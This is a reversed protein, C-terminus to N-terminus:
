SGDDEEGKGWYRIHPKNERAERDMAWAKVKGM